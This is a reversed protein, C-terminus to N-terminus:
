KSRELENYAKVLETMRNELAQNIGKLIKIETEDKQNVSLEIGSYQLVKKIELMFIEKLSRENKTYVYIYDECIEKGKKIQIEIPFIWDLVQTNDKLVFRATKSTDLFIVVDQPCLNSILKYVNDQEENIQDIILVKIEDNKDNKYEDFTEILKMKIYFEPYFYNLGELQLTNLGCTIIEVSSNNEIRKTAALAVLYKHMYRYTKELMQNFCLVKNLKNGLGHIATSSVAIGVEYNKNICYPILESPFFRDLVIANPFWRHYLGHIDSPHPKIILKNAGAFYDAMCLYINKQEEMSMLNLNVYHQTLIIAYTDDNETKKASVGFLNLVENREEEELDALIESTSFHIDKENYYGQEQVTLDGYRAIVTSSNGLLKLKEIINKRVSCVKEIHEILQEETSLRGAGDEFFNYKIKKTALYIGVSYFDDFVNIEKCYELKIPFREEIFKISEDIIVDVSKEAVIDYEEYLYVKDFIVSDSLLKMVQNCDNNRAPFCVVANEKKHYKLKHLISCLLHYHTVCYYLIVEKEQRM